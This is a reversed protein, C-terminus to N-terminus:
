RKEILRQTDTWPQQQRLIVLGANEYKAQVDANPVLSRVLGDDQESDRGYPM